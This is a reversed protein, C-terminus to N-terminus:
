TLSLTLHGPSEIMNIVKVQLKLKSTIINFYKLGVIVAM